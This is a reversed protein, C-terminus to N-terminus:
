SCSVVGNCEPVVFGCECVLATCAAQPLPLGPAINSIFLQGSDLLPVCGTQGFETGTAGLDACRDTNGQLVREWDGAMRGLLSNCIGVLDARVGPASLLVAVLSLVPAIRKM